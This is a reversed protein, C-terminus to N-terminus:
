NFWESHIPAQDISSYSFILSSNCGPVISSTGPYLGETRYSWIGIRLEEVIARKGLDIITIIVQL